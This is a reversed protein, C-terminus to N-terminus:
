QTNMTWVQRLKLFSYMCPRHHVKTNENWPCWIYEDSRIFKILLWNSNSCCNEIFLDGFSLKIVYDIVVMKAMKGFIRLALMHAMEHASIPLTQGERDIKFSHCGICFFLWTKIWSNDHLMIWALSIKRFRTYLLEPHSGKQIPLM